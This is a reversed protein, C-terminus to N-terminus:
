IRENERRDSVSSGNGSCKVTEEETVIWQLPIDHRDQPLKEALQCAYIVGVAPKRAGALMRDYYGGGRGLRVGSADCAVAPVLFLVENKVYEADAAPIEPVPEAIGYKGIVLDREPDSIEVLEYIRSEQVFRPLFFRKEPFLPMLDPEAGLACFAAVASSQRYVDLERIRTRIRADFDKREEATLAKRGASFCKRLVAKDETM